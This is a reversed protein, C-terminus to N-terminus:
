KKIEKYKRQQQFPLKREEEAREVDLIFYDEPMKRMQDEIVMNKLQDFDEIDIRPMTERVEGVTRVIRSERMNEIMKEESTGPAYSPENYVNATYEQFGPTKTQTSLRETERETELNEVEPAIRDTLSPLTPTSSKEESSLSSLMFESFDNEEVESEILDKLTEHQSPGKEELKEEEDEELEKEKKELKEETM